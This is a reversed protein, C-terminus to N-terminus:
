RMDKLSSLDEQCHVQSQPQHSQVMGCFRLLLLTAFMAPHYASVALIKVDRGGLPVGSTRALSNQGSRARVLLDM